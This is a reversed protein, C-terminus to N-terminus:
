QRSLLEPSVAVVPSRSKLLQPKSPQSCNTEQRGKERREEERRNGYEEERRKM